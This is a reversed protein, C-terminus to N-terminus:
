NRENILIHFVLRFEIKLHHQRTTQHPDFNMDDEVSSNFAQASYSNM